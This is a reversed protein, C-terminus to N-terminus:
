ISEDLEQLIYVTVDNAAHIYITYVVWIQLVVAMCDQLEAELQTTNETMETKVQQLKLAELGEGLTESSNIDSGGFSM